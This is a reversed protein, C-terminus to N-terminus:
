LIARGGYGQRRRVSFVIDFIVENPSTMKTDNEIKNRKVEGYSM